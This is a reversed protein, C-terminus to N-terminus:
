VWTETLTSPTGFTESESKEMLVATKSSFFNVSACIRSAQARSQVPSPSSAIRWYRSCRGFNPLSSSAASAIATSTDSCTRSTSSPLRLMLPPWKRGESNWNMPWVTALAREYCDPHEREVWDLWDGARHDETVEARDFGYQLVDNYADRGHCQLHFKGVGFTQVRSQQLVQTFTPLHTGLEWGNYFVGHHQASRGTLTSSRSPMCVPLNAFCNDFRMGQAGLADINPTHAAPSGYCGLWKASLQDCEIFVINM